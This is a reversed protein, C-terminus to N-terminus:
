TDTIRNYKKVFYIYSCFSFMIGDNIKHNEDTTNGTAHCKYFSILKNQKSVSAYTLNKQSFNVATFILLNSHCGM